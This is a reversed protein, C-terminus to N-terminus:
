VPNPGFVVTVSLQTSSSPLMYIFLCLLGTMLLVGRTWGAFPSRNSKERAIVEDEQRYSPLRVEPGLDADTLDVTYSHNEVKENLLEDLTTSPAAYQYTQTANEQAAQHRGCSTDVALGRRTRSSRTPSTVEVGRYSRAISESRWAEAAKQRLLQQTPSWRAARPSTSKSRTTQRPLMFYSDPNLPSPIPPSYTRETPSSPMTIATTIKIRRAFTSSPNSSSTRAAPSTTRLRSLLVSLLFVHM